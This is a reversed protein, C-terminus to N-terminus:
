GNKKGGRCDKLFIKKTPILVKDSGNYRIVYHRDVQQNKEEESYAFLITGFGRSEWELIEENTMLEEDEIEEDELIPILFQFGVTGDFFPRYSKEKIDELINRRKGCKHKDTSILFEEAGRLTEFFLCRKGIYKKAEETDRYTLIKKGFKSM